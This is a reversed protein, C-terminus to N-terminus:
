QTEQRNEVIKGGTEAINELYEDQAVPPDTAVATSAENSRRV